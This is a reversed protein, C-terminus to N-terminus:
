IEPSIRPSLREGNEIKAVQQQQERHAEEQTEWAEELERQERIRDEEVYSDVKIRNSGKAIWMWDERMKKIQNAIQVLPDGEGLRGIGEYDSMDLQYTYSEDGQDYPSRKWRVSVTFKKQQQSGFRGLYTSIRMGPKLTSISQLPVIEARVERDFDLPPNFGVHIDYAPANGTNEVILDLFRMSWRNPEITAVIHPQSTAQAMRKTEDVLAQTVRWLAITAGATVFAGVVQAVVLLNQATSSDM